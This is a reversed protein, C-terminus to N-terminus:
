PNIVAGHNGDNVMMILMLNQICKMAQIKLISISLKVSNVPHMEAYGDIARSSQAIKSRSDVM